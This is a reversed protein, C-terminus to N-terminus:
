IFLILIFSACVQQARGRIEQRTAELDEVPAEKKTEATTPKATEDGYAYVTGSLLFAGALLGGAYLYKQNGNSRQTSPVETRLISTRLAKLTKIRSFMNDSSQAGQSGLFVHSVRAMKQGSQKRSQQM